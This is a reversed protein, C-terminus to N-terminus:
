TKKYNLCYVVLKNGDLDRFYGGYFGMTSGRDQPCGEDTAGMTLAKEYVQEVTAADKAVLAVMTGNGVTAQHEDFPLSVSFM